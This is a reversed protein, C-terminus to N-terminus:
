GRTNGLMSPRWPLKPFCHRRTTARASAGSNEKSATRVSTSSEARACTSKRPKPTARGTFNEPLRLHSQASSCPTFSPRSKRRQPSRTSFDRAPSPTSALAADGARLLGDDTVPTRKVVTADRAMLNSVIRQASGPAMLSTGRLMQLFRLSHEGRPWRRVTRPSVFLTVAADADNGRAAWLWGSSLAAVFSSRPDLHAGAVHATLALTRPGLTSRTGNLASSRGTADVLFRSRIEPTGSQGSPLVWYGSNDAFYPPLPNSNIVWCNAGAAVTSTHLVSDLLRRDVLADHLVMGELNEDSRTWRLAARCPVLLSAIRPWVDPHHLRMLGLAGPSLTEWRARSSEIQPARQLLCVRHGSLALRRAVTFGAPGGGVIAVDFEAM